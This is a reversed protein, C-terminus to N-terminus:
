DPEDSSTPVFDSSTMNPFDRVFVCMLARRPGTEERLCGLGVARDIGARKTQAAAKIKMAAELENRSMPRGATKAARIAARATADLIADPRDDDNGPTWLHITTGGDPYVTFEIDTVTAGAQHTGHRDKACKVALRGGTTRTPALNATVLYGAGTIGARKRKSGSPFLVNDKSKTAHDILLVAPGAEAIPRAVTRFFYAVDADVNEDLRGLGFTEGTSDVVTLTPNRRRTLEVLAAAENATIATEPRFYHFRTAITDTDIGLVVHLREVLENPGAEFDVWVVDRGARLEQAAAIFALWTKGQGSDGWISNIKGSYLLGVHDDRRLITPVLPAWDGSLVPRLNVQQWSPDIEYPDVDGLDVIVDRIAASHAGSM